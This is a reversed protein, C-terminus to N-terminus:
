KAADYEAQLMKGYQKLVGSVFKRKNPDRCLDVFSQFETVQTLISIFADINDDGMEQALKCRSYFDEVTSNRSIIFKELRSEFGAVFQEYKETYNLKFEKESGDGLGGGEGAAAMVSDIEKFLEDSLCFQIVEPIIKFKDAEKKKSWPWFSM